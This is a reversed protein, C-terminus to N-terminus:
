RYAGGQVLIPSSLSSMGARGPLSPSHLMDVNIESITGPPMVGRSMVSAM